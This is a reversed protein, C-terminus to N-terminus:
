GCVASEAITGRMGTQRPILSGYTRARITALDFAVPTHFQRQTSDRITGAVYTAFSDRVIRRLSCGVSPIPVENQGDDDRLFIGGLPYMCGTRFVVMPHM